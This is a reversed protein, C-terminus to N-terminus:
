LHKGIRDCQYRDDTLYHGYLRDGRDGWIDCEHTADSFPKGKLAKFDLKRPNHEGKSELYESLDDLRENLTYLRDPQLKQVNKKFEESYVLKLSLPTLLEKQYYNRKGQKWILQGWESLSVFGDDQWLLTEPIGQCESIPLKKNSQLQRFTNLNQNMVGEPDLKIPLRPIRLLESSFQFIYICEDAYFTGITQLFGNVSKFGGTLNFIVKDHQSNQYCQFTEDCWQILDSMSLRFSDINKTALDQIIKEQTNLGRDRLWDGVIKVVQRGQYTDTGLIYHIDHSLEPIKGQYYTIIGNLEASLEKVSKLDDKLDYLYQRRKKIHEDIIRKDDSNLDSENTNTNMSLKKRLDQDIQNTLLSTGCPSLLIQAM